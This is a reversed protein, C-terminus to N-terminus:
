YLLLAVGDRAVGNPAWCEFLFRISSWFMIDNSSEAAMFWILFLRNRFSITAIGRWMFVCFTKDSQFRHTVPDPHSKRPAIERKIKGQHIILTNVSPGWGLSIQWVFSESISNSLLKGRKTRKINVATETSPLPGRSYVAWNLGVCM